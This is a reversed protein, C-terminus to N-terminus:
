ALTLFATLFCYMFMASISFNLASIIVGLVKNPGVFLLFFDVKSETESTWDEFYKKQQSVSGSKFLLIYNHLKRKNGGKEHNKKGIYLCVSETNEM